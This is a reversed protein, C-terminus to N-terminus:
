ACKVEDLTIFNKKKEPEILINEADKHYKMFSVIDKEYQKFEYEFNLSNIVNLIIGTKEYDM